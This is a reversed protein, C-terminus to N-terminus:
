ADLGEAGGSFDNHDHEPKFPERYRPIDRYDAERLMKTQPDQVHFDGASIGSVVGLATLPEALNGMDRYREAIAIGVPNNHYDMESEISGEKGWGMEYATMITKATRAGLNLALLGSLMGHRWADNGDNFQGKRGHASLGSPRYRDIRDYIAGLAERRLSKGVDSAAAKAENYTESVWGLASKTERIKRPVMM